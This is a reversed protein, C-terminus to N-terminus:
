SCCWNTSHCHGCRRAEATATEIVIHCHSVIFIHRQFEVMNKKEHFVQLLSMMMMTTTLWVVFWTLTINTIYFLPLPRFIEVKSVRQKGTFLILDEKFGFLFMIKIKPLLYVRSMWFQWFSFNYNTIKCSCKSPKM